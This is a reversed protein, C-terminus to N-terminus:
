NGEDKEKKDKFFDSGRGPCYRKGDSGEDREERPTEMEGADGEFGVEGHGEEGDGDPTEEVEVLFGVTKESEKEGKKSDVAVVAGSEGDGKEKKKEENLRGGGVQIVNEAM